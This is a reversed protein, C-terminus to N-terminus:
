PTRDAVYGLRGWTARQLRQLDYWGDETKPEYDGGDLFERSTNQSLRRPLDAVTERGKWKWYEAHGDAMSLTVGGNHHLPPPNGAYWRPSLYHVYFDSGIPTIGQDMFVLREAAGPSTIDTLRTLRLVTSGVRIGFAVLESSLKTELKYTGEVYTGNAAPVTTYTAFNGVEGRPCRYVDIDRLYPWLPGKAPDEFLASRSEPRSFATGLWGELRKPVSQAGWQITRVGVSSGYVLRGDHEDAYAIWAVTLQRLNSLCVARQARERAANMAPIFIALLIAIVAIVVLVEILTFAKPHIISSQCNVIQNRRGTPHPYEMTKTDAPKM